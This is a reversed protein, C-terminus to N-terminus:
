GVCEGFKASIGKGLGVNINIVSSSLYHYIIIFSSLHHYISKSKDGNNVMINSSIIINTTPNMNSEHQICVYTTPNMNYM